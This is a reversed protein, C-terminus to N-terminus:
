AGALDGLGALATEYATAISELLEAPDFQRRRALRFSLAKAGAVVRDTAACVEDAEDGFLWRSFSGLAEFGSGLIRVTAFAYDHYAALDGSLLAPLSDNLAAGFRRVPNDAPRRTLNRRLSERAADKLDDGELKPGADFRVLEVYPPLVDPSFEGIRFVGRFDEGELAFFGPGHFYRLEEGIPDIMDFACSTKVHEQRYSTAALDPLYWSDLEVIMSRRAAIQQDIQVPLPRYPNM